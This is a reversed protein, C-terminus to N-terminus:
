CFRYTNSNQIKMKWIKDNRKLYLYAYVTPIYVKGVTLHKIHKYKIKKHVKFNKQIKFNKRKYKTHTSLKWSM